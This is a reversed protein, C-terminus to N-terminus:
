YFNEAISVVGQKGCKELLLCFLYGVRPFNCVLVPVSSELLVGVAGFGGDSDSNDLFLASVLKVRFVVAFMLLSWDYM